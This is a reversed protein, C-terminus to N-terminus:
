IHILSLGYMRRYRVVLQFYPVAGLDGVQVRTGGWVESLTFEPKAARNHWNGKKYREFGKQSRFRVKDLHGAVFDYYTEFAGLESREGFEGSRSADAYSMRYSRDGGYLKLITSVNRGDELPCPGVEYAWRSNGQGFPQPGDTKDIRSDFINKIVQILAPQELLAAKMQLTREIYQM